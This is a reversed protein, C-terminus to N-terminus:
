KNGGTPCRQAFFLWFLNCSSLKRLPMLMQIFNTLVYGMKNQVMGNSSRNQTWIYRRDKYRFNFSIMIWPATTDMENELFDEVEEFFNFGTKKISESPISYKDVQNSRM